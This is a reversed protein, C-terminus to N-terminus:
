VPQVPGEVNRFTCNEFEIIYRKCIQMTKSMKDTKTKIYVPFDFSFDVETKVYPFLRFTSGKSNEVWERLRDAQPQSRL